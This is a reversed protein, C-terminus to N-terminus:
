RECRPASEWLPRQQRSRPTQGGCWSCIAGYEERPWDMRGKGDCPECFADANGYDGADARLVARLLLALRARLLRVGEIPGNVIPLLLGGVAASDPDGMLLAGVGAAVDTRDQASRLTVLALTLAARDRRSLTM